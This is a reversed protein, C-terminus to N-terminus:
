AKPRTLLELIEHYRKQYAFSYGFIFKNNSNKELSLSVIIAKLILRRVMVFLFFEIIEKEKNSKAFILPINGGFFLLLPNM